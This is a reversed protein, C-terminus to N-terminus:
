TALDITADGEFVEFADHFMNPHKTAMVELGKKIMAPILTWEEDGDDNEIGVLRVNFLMDEWMPPYSYWPTEWTAPPAPYTLTASDLWYNSGGEFATVIQDAIMQGSVRVIKTITIDHM